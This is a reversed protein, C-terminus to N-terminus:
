NQPVGFFPTHTHKTHSHTFNMSKRPYGQLLVSWEKKNMFEECKDFHIQAPNKKKKEKGLLFPYHM